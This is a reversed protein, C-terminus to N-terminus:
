EPWTMQARQKTRCLTCTRTNGYSHEWVHPCPDLHMKELAGGCDPCELSSPLDDFEANEDQEQIYTWCGEHAITVIAQTIATMYATAKYPYRDEQYCDTCFFIKTM